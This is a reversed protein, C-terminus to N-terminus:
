VVVQLTKNKGHHGATIRVTNPVVRFYRAVLVCVRANAANREAKEKVSANFANESTKKFMEKRAGAIVKVRVLVKKM